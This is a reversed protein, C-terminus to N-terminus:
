ALWQVIKENVEASNLIQMHGTNYVVWQSSPKFALTRAEEAHQGLASHLPVLGDGVLRDSLLSRKQALCAAVTFFEVTGPLTVLQRQDPKRDFRDHAHWDEDLINGYRLDTIGASRLQGLAKFPKTYSVGGLIVDLWNGARELPAGHHPTGLFVVKKLRQPWSLGQEMAQALASRILLGGMSHAVVSLEDIDQPWMTLLRELQAALEAGNQSIHLGSNYRVYIPQYGLKSSLFEGPETAYKNQRAHLKLDNMCLGHILLMIKGSLAPAAPPNQEDLVSDHYHLTMPLAFPSKNERLQDGMVGNLVSLFTEEKPTRHANTESSEFVSQLLSLTTNASAGTIRTISHILSYVAGTIGRTKGEAEGGPLGIGDWVARHVGEVLRTVSGTAQTALQVAGRIDSIRM